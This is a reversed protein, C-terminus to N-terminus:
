THRDFGGRGSGLHFPGHEFVLTDKLLLGLSSLQSGAASLWQSVPLPQPSPFARVPHTLSPPNSFYFGESAGVAPLAILFVIPESYALSQPEVM